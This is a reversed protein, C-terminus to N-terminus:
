QMGIMSNILLRVLSTQRSVGTKCFISRLHTRATNRRVDLREAAEDLTLGEALALSLRSEVRTLGFLRRLLDESPPPTKAEPDRFMVAFAPCQRSESWQGAPIPRVLVGLKGRGSPRTVAIFDIVKPAQTPNGSLANRMSNQLDRNEISHEVQLHNGTLWIGDREDLIRQAEQNMEVISGNRDFSVVGLLMRDVTGAFFSRECELLDIKAHLRISRKLHPLLEFVLSKDAQSFDRADNRRTIRLRCETGEATYIDAGLVFRVGIPQLLAQFVESKLWSRGIHEDATVVEGERLRVFPDLSFLTSGYSKALEPVLSGSNVMVGSSESSPPRLMLTVHAANLRMRLLELASQWPPSEMPGEYIAGILTEVRTIDTVPHRFASLVSSRSSLAQAVLPPSSLKRIHPSQM